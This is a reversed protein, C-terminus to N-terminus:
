ENKWVPKKNTIFAELAHIRDKSELTKLYEYKQVDLYFQRNKYYIKNIASKTSSIGIPSNKIFKEALNISDSIIDNSIYDILGINYAKQSNLIESSYILRKATTIGTILPLRFVGGAGPIIGLSTEPFGIKLSQSSIRFDTCLSLEAGGGLAAGSIASIVPIKLDEIKNFTKNIQTLFKLTQKRNIKKREKLDAGACFHELKTSIILCRISENENIGDIVEDLQNIFSMSIANVPKRSLWIIYIKENIKETNIM